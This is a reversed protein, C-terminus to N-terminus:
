PEIRFEDELGTIELLRLTARGPSRLRVERGASRAQIMSRLGSSDVFGVGSLDLVIPDDPGGEAAEIAAALRPATHADLDGTVTIVEGVVDIHFEDDV